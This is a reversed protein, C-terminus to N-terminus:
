KKAEPRWEFRKLAVTPFDKAHAIQVRVLEPSYYVWGMGPMRYSWELDLPGAKLWLRSGEDRREFRKPDATPIRRYKECVFDSGKHEKGGDRSRYRYHYRVGRDMEESFIFAAVGRPDSVVLMLQDYVIPASHRELGPQQQNEAAPQQAMMVWLGAPVFTLTIAPSYM